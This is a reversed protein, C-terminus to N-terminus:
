LEGKRAKMFNESVDKLAKEVKQKAEPDDVKKVVFSAAEDISKKLREGEMRVLVACTFAKFDEKAGLSKKYERQEWYTKVIAAGHILSQVKQSLTTSMFERLPQLSPNNLDISANGESTGAFTKDIFNTIESAIDANVNAKAIDCAMSRNTKPETEFSFFRYKEAEKENQKAWVNADEIWGPRYDSNADRVEYEKKISTHKVEELPREPVEPRKKESSCGVMLTLIVLSSLSLKVANKM